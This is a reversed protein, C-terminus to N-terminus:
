ELARQALAELAEVTKQHKSLRRYYDRAKGESLALRRETKATALVHKVAELDVRGNLYGLSTDLLEKRDAYHGDGCQEELEIFLQPWDEPDHQYMIEWPTYNEDQAARVIWTVLLYRFSHRLEGSLHKDLRSTKKTAM